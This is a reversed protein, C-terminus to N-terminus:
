VRERWTALSEAVVEHVTNYDKNVICDLIRQHYLPAKSDVTEKRVNEVISKEFISYVSKLIRIFFINKCSDILLMHFELDCTQMQEVDQNKCADKMKDISHQLKEVEEPTIKSMALQVTSEDLIQRLELLEDSSSVDYIMSYVLRDFLTPNVQSCIYTGDGRKIEVIGMTALIKMAERLSNRSVQLEEMLAFESPLKPGSKYDGRIISETLTNIIQDVITKQGITELRKRDNGAM